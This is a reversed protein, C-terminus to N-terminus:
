APPTGNTGLQFTYNDGWCYTLNTTSIGCTHYAGAAIKKFVVTSFLAVPSTRTETTGDGLAGANNFGWCLVTGSADLGCTHREGAVIDVFAPTGAVLSPTNRSDTTGDGLAGVVNDGWCYPDGNDSLACTHALGGAVKIFKTPVAVKTPILRQLNTGDGVQGRDNRGWCYVSSDASIGCTHAGGSSISTFKVGGGVLVAVNQTILNGTGLQGNDNVGWCWVEGNAKLGCTHGFTSASVQIFLHGGTIPAPEFKDINSGVGLQGGVNNGWCMTTKDVNIGCTHNGGASISSFLAGGIIVRPVNSGTGGPVGNGSQGQTNLGWCFVQGDAQLGCSHFDGLSLDVFTRTGNIQTPKTLFTPLDPGNDSCSFLAVAGFVIALARLPFRSHMFTPHPTVFGRRGAAIEYVIQMIGPITV